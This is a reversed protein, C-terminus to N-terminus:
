IAAQQQLRDILDHIRNRRYLYQLLSRAKEKKSDGGLNEWDVDLDLALQQLADLNFHALLYQRLVTPPSDTSLKELRPLHEPPPPTLIREVALALAPTQGRQEATDLLATIFESTTQGPILVENEHIALDFMLDLVDARGLRTRIADTLMQRDFAATDAEALSATAAPKPNVAKPQAAPAPAALGERIVRQLVGWIWVAAGGFLAGNIAPYFFGLEGALEERGFTGLFADLLVATTVTLLGVAWVLSPRRIFMVLMFGVAILKLALFISMSTVRNGSFVTHITANVGGRAFQGRRPIM